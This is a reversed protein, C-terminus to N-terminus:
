KLKSEANRVMNQLTEKMRRVESDSVKSEDKDVIFSTVYVAQYADNVRQEFENLAEVLIRKKMERANM